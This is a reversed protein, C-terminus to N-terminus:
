NLDISPQYNGLAYMCQLYFAFTFKGRSVKTKLASESFREGSSSELAKSLEMYTVRRRLMESRLIAVAERNWIEPPKHTPSTM